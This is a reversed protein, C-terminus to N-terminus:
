FEGPFKDFNSDYLLFLDNVKFNHLKIHRDNWAKEREKKVEHHLRPFFRDEEIEALQM